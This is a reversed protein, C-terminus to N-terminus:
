QNQKQKKAKGTGLRNGKRQRVTKNKTSQRRPLFHPKPSGEQIQNVLTTARTLPSTESPTAPETRAPTKAKESHLLCPSQLHQRVRFPPALPVPLTQLDLLAPLHPQPPLFNQSPDTGPNRPPSHAYGKPPKPAHLQTQSFSSRDLSQYLAPFGLFRPCSPALHLPALSLASRLDLFIGTSYGLIWSRPTQVAWPTWELHLSRLNKETHLFIRRPLTGRVKGQHLAGNQRPSMYQIDIPTLIEFPSM